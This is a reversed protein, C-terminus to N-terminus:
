NLAVDGRDIYVHDVAGFRVSCTFRRLRSPDNDRWGTREEVTGEVDWGDANRDVQDIDRVSARDGAKAETARACADVAENESEIKGQVAPDVGDRARKSKGASSLVAALIGIVAIGAIVDGADIDDHHRRHWGKGYGGWGGWQGWGGYGRDRALVPTASTSVLALAVAGAVCKRLNAMAM